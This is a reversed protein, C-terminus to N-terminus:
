PTACMLVLLKNIVAISSNVEMGSQARRNMSCAEGV